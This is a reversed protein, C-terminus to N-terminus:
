VYSGFLMVNSCKLNLGTRKRSLVNIWFHVEMQVFTDNLGEIKSEPSSNEWKAKEKSLLIQNSRYTTFMCTNKWRPKNQTWPRPTQPHLEDTTSEGLHIMKWVLLGERQGSWALSLVIHLYIRKLHSRATEAGNQMQASSRELRKDHGFKCRKQKVVREDHWYSFLTWPVTNNFLSTLNIAHFLLYKSVFM